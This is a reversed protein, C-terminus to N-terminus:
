YNWRNSHVYRFSKNIKVTHPKSHLSIVLNFVFRNTKKKKKIREEYQIYPKRKKKKSKKQCIRICITKTHKITFVYMQVWWLTPQLSCQVSFAPEDSINTCTERFTMNPHNIENRKMKNNGYTSEFCNKSWLNLQVTINIHVYCSIGALTIDMMALSHSGFFFCWVSAEIKYMYVFSFLRNKHALLFIWKEKRKESQQM